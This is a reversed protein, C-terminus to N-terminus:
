ESFIDFFSTFTAIMLLAFNLFLYLFNFTGDLPISFFTSEFTGRFFDLLPM